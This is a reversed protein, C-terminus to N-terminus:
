TGGAAGPKAHVAPEPEMGAPADPKAGCAPAPGMGCEKLARMVAPQDDREGIWRKLEIPDTPPDFGGARLCSVMKDVDPSKAAPVEGSQVAVQKCTRGTSEPVHARLWQDLATGTLAPVSVGHDRLCDLL